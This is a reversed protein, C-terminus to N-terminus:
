LANENQTYRTYINRVTTGYWAGGSRTPLQEKNFINAIDAYTNNQKRLLVIRPGVTQAFKDANLKIQEHHKTHGERYGGLKKGAAKAKALGLKTLESHSMAKGHIKSHCDLCIDILNTNIDTGGM